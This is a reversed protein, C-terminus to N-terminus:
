LSLLPLRSKRGHSEQVALEETQPCCGHHNRDTFSFVPVTSLFRLKSSVAAEIHTKWSLVWLVRFGSTGNILGVEWTCFLALSQRLVWLWGIVALWKVQASVRCARFVWSRVLFKSTVVPAKRQSGLILSSQNWSPIKFKQSFVMQM